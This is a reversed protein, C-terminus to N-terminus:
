VPLLRILIVFTPLSPDIVFVPSIFSKLFTDIGRGRFKCTVSQGSLFRFGRIEKKMM